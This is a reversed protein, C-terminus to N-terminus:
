KKFHKNKLVLHKQFERYLSIEESTLRNEEEDPSNIEHQM